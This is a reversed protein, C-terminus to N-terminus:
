INLKFHNYTGESVHHVFYLEHKIGSSFSAYNIGFSEFLNNKSPITRLIQMVKILYKESIKENKPIKSIIDKAWSKIEVIYHFERNHRFEENTRTSYYRSIYECAVPNNYIKYSKEFIDFAANYLDQKRKPDKESMAEYYLKEGEKALQMGLTFNGLDFNASIHNNIPYKKHFNSLIEQRKPRSYKKLENKRVDNKESNNWPDPVQIRNIQVFLDTIKQRNNKKKSKNANNSKQANYDRILKNILEKYGNIRTNISPNNNEGSKEM